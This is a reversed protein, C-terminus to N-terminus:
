VCSVYGNLGCNRLMHVASSCGKFPQAASPHLGALARGFERKFANVTDKLSPSVDLSDAQTRTEVRMAYRTECLALLLVWPVAPSGEEILGWELDAVFCHVCAQWTGNAPRHARFM